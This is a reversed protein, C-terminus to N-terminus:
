RGNRPQEAPPENGPEIGLSIASALTEAIMSEFHRPDYPESPSPWSAVEEVAWRAWELRTVALPWLLRLFVANIHIRGPFRGQGEGYEGATRIWHRLEDEADQRVREIASLMAEKTGLNGFYVQLVPASQFSSGSLSEDALWDRMADRGAATIRYETRARRGVQQPTATAFGAAVLKKPEEYLGSEVRPWIRDLSRRMLKALEYTSWPQIALLGLIAYSTTTLKPPRENRQTMPISLMSRVPTYSRM